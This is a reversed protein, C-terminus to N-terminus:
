PNGRKARAEAEAMAILYREVLSLADETVVDVQGKCVPSIEAVAASISREQAANITGLRNQVALADLTSAYVVCVRRVRETLDAPAGQFMACAALTLLALLGAMTAQLFGRLM